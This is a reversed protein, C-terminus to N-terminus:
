DVLLLGVGLAILGAALSAGGLFVLFIFRNPEERGAGLSSLFFGASMLLAALPIGSRAVTGLSGDLGAADAYLLGVLSLILLVGAHAHGARAFSLQFPTSTADGRVVRVLYMGGTEVTVLAFLLIAATLRTAQSLEAMSM